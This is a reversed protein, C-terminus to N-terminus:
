KYHAIAQQVAFKWSAIIITIGGAVKALWVASREVTGLLSLGVKLRKSLEIYESLAETNEKVAANLSNVHSTHALMSQELANMRAALQILSDHDVSM